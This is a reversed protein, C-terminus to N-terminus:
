RATTLCPASKPISRCQLSSPTKIQAAKVIFKIRAIRIDAPIQDDLINTANDKWYICGNGRYSARNL